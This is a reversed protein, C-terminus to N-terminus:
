TTKYLYWGKGVAEVWIYSHPDMAPPASDTWLFGVENDVMGGIVVHTVPGERYAQLAGAERLAAQVEPADPETRARELLARNRDAWALLERDSALTLRANKVSLRMQPDKSPNAEDLRILEQLLGTLALSRAATITWGSTRTLFFYIDPHSVNAPIRAVATGPASMAIKDPAGLDGFTSADVRDLEGALLAKGEPSQLASRRDLDLLLAMAADPTPPLSPPSAAALLLALLIM